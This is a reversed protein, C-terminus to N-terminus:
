HCHVGLQRLTEFFGPYSIQVCEADHITTTGSAVLGAVAFAMAVRHDGSTEIEAGRLKVPGTVLLGDGFEEVTAGMKQLNSALLHLRDSEKARLESANRIITQGDAGTALIALIPLEDILRPIQTGAIKVGHLKSSRVCLTAVPEGGIERQEELEVHAGMDRVVDIFGSRTPNTNVAALKLESNPVLLAAAVLFSAASIDGPVHIEIGHLEGASISIRNGQCSMPAGMARLLRESHDRTAVREELTTKGSAGLGALLLCSKVQASPIPIEYTIGELQRGRILLPPLGSDSAQIDAGMQRLPELIRHMPRRRLSADGTLTSSFRQAALMGALLRMTTGSNGADLASAPAALTHYGRGHVCVAEKGSRIEVGLQRLCAVTSRVDAGTNINEVRTVGKAIAGFLLGRHSISKDGPVCMTGRLGSCPKIDVNM